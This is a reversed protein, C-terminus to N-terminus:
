SIGESFPGLSVRDWVIGDGFRSAIRSAPLLPVQAAGGTTPLIAPALGLGFRRTVGCGSM